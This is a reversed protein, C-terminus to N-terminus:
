EAVRSEIKEIQKMLRRLPRMAAEKCVLRIDSGSYGELLESVQEFDIEDSARPGGAQVGLPNSPGPPLHYRLMQERAENSPLTVLIRKELRRLLAVDLEWPLNSAALLFVRENKSKILGDLQILLETKMRRSAEHEGTSSRSSLISDIEDM